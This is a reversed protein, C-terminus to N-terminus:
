WQQGLPLAAGAFSAAVRLVLDVQSHSDTRAMARALLTRATNHSIGARRAFEPLSVGSLLALVLRGEAPTFGFLDALVTLSPAIKAGPDSIFMLIAPMTSGGAKAAAGVPALMLAYATKGSPRHVRMHGGASRREGQVHCLASILRQLRGDDEKGAARLGDVTRLLGDAGRLIADAAANVHLLRGKAGMMVVGISLHDLVAYLSRSAQDAQQLRGRIELARQIHPLLRGVLKAERASFDKCSRPRHIGLVAQHGDDMPIVSGVLHYMDIRRPRLYENYIISRELTREDVVDSGIIARGFLRQESFGNVWVDHQAFEAYEQFAQPSLSLWGLVDVTSTQRSHTSLLLTQGGVYTMLTESVSKWSRYGLAADYLAGILSSEDRTAMRGWRRDGRLIGHMIIALIQRGRPRIAITKHRTRRLALLEAALVGPRRTLAFNRSPGGEKSAYSGASM